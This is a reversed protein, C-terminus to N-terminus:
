TALYCHSEKMQPIRSLIVITTMEMTFNHNHGNLPKLPVEERYQRNQELVEERLIYHIKRRNHLFQIGHRMKLM